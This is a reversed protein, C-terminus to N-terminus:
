IPLKVMYPMYIAPEDKESHRWKEPVTVLKDPNKALYAAWWSFTSNSLVFHKCRGMLAFDEYDKTGQVFVTNEPFSLLESAKKADNTFVFFVPDDLKERIYEIGKQYYAPSCVDLDRNIAKKYDGLRIHLAVANSEDIQKQYSLAQRSLPCAVAFQEKLLAACQSFYQEGQFYGYIYKNKRNCRPVPYYYPDFNFLLGRKAYRCFLLNGTRDTKALVRIAKQLIHYCKQALTVRLREAKPIDVTDWLPYRPVNLRYLGLEQGKPYYGTDFCIPEGYEKALQLGYAYQYMQNGLGGILKVVIM